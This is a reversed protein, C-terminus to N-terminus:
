FSSFKGPDVGKESSSCIKQNPCGACAEGKGAGETSTGPCGKNANQPIEEKEM